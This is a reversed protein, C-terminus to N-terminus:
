GCWNLSSVGTPRKWRQFVLSTPILQSLSTNIHKDINQSISEIPFLNMNTRSKGNQILDISTVIGGNTETRNKQLKWGVRFTGYSCVGLWNQNGSVGLSVDLVELCHKMVHSCEVGGLVFVWGEVTRELKDDFRIWAHCGVDFCKTQCSRYFALSNECDLLSGWDLM